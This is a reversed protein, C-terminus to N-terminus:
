EGRKDDPKSLLAGMPMEGEEFTVRYLGTEGTDSTFYLVGDETFVIGVPRAWRNGQADQFGTLLTQIRGSDPGTLTIGAILPERRTAPDGSAGGRPKTAWSGHVAAAADLGLESGEPVFDLGMPASRAPFTAVPTNIESAPRPSEGAICDDQRYQGDVWQFWPMGFFSGQEARVLVERPEEYGWHDPGNNTAYLTGQHDWALGIPNRLGTAYPQWRPTEGSEDLVMIGGRRNEFRYDEGIYQDSCNGQIGLSLYLRDDPGVVLTRSNHGGGGPIRALSEFDGSALTGGPQYDAVLLADTTAVYLKDDRQAVSHPYDELRVLVQADQYPPTLRYVKDADSGIFMEGNRGLTILRPAELDVLKTVTAGPPASLQHSTGAVDVRNLEEGPQARATSSLALALISMALAVLVPDQVSHFSIRM